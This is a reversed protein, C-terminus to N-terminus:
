KKNIILSNIKSEVDAVKDIVGSLSSMQSKLNSLTSATEDNTKTANSNTRRKDAYNLLSLLLAAVTPFDLTPAAAIKVILVVVAVNTISVKHQQDLLNLFSLTKKFM